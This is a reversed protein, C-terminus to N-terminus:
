EQQSTGFLEDVPHCRIPNDVILRKTGPTRRISGEVLVAQRSSHWEWAHRYEVMPLRVLIESQHGKRVTSIAIEGFPDSEDEHRLQVITGSFVQRPDVKQQYLRLAVAEILEVADADISINRPMTEPAPVVPSWDVRTEFEAVSTESLIGALATCFERSVGRYVLEHINDTTPTRAPQVVLEQLAQMSQAFTRVVRREFPEPASRHFLPTGHDLMPQHMDPEPLGPLPVLVPFVFSGKETHGMLAHKVVADGIRSFGQGIQARESRATTATARLMARGSNIVRSATELPITDFTRYDNAARLYTVDFLLFRASDAVDKPNRQESLAVREIIGRISHADPSAPVGIRRDGKTWIAGAYGPAQESWGHFRLYAKIDSISPLAYEVM